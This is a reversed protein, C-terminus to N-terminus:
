LVKKFRIEPKESTPSAGWHTAVKIWDADDAHINFYIERMGQLRMSTELNTLFFLKRKDTTEPDFIVPDLEFCNRLVAFDKGGFTVVTSAPTIDSKSQIAEVEEPTALRIIDM